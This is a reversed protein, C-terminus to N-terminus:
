NERLKSLLRLIELYLWVLTVTLGLACYWEMHAPLKNAVGQEIMDFDLALTFAALGAVFVSFLIGMPSADNIFSPMSGFMGLVFSVLYFAMLGLLAGMIIRRFKDTVRIIRSRYLLLMVVFVGLTAGIAQTVIGDYQESYARSIAGLVVGEALAYVPAAFKALHPKFTGVLVAVLAVIFGGIVWGTPIQVLEGPAPADISVWTVTASALILVLLMLTASATGKVTMIGGDWRSVPGDTMPEVHPPAWTQSNDTSGQRNHNGLGMAKDTLLPNSM